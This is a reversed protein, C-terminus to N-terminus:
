NWSFIWCNEVLVSKMPCLNIKLTSLVSFHVISLECLCGRHTPLPEENGHKRAGVSAWTEVCACSANLACRRNHSPYSGRSSKTALEAWEIWAPDHWFDPRVLTKSKPRTLRTIAKKDSSDTWELGRRASRESRICHLQHRAPKIQGTKFRQPPERWGM